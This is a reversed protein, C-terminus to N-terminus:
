GRSLVELAQGGPIFGPHRIRNRALIDDVLALSGYLRYAEVLVPSTQAPTHTVLRPLQQREGPVHLAVDARLELLANYSEDDAAELQVDLADLIASRVAVADEYSDFGGVQTAAVGTITPSTPAPRAVDATLVAMRGAEVLVTQRIYAEAADYNAQERARTTTPTTAPRPTSSTFGYVALLASTGLRATSPWERFSTLIFGFRTALQVPDRVLSTADTLIADTLSKLAAVHQVYALVPTLETRLSRSASQVLGAVSTLGFDPLSKTPQGPLAEIATATGLQPIEVIFRRRLTSVLAVQAGDASAEARAFPSAIASPAFPTEVTELFTITFVAMGGEDKSEEIQFDAAVVLRRGHYPHVLEGPGLAELADQLVNRQNIYDPGIVFAQLAFSRSRRGLDEVYADDRLPYEHVVAKRGGSVSSREVVFPKGRFSAKQLQDRWAM